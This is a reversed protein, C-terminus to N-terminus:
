EIKTLNPSGTFLFTEMSGDINEIFFYDEEILTVVRFALGNRDDSTLRWELNGQNDLKLLESTTESQSDIWNVHFYINGQPDVAVFHFFFLDQEKHTLLIPDLHASVDQWEGDSHSYRKIVFTGWEQDSMTPIVYLDGDLGAVISQWPRVMPHSYNGMEIVTDLILDESSVHMVDVYVTANDVNCVLFRDNAFAYVYPEGIMVANANCYTLQATSQPGVLTMFTRTPIDFLVYDQPGDIGVFLIRNDTLPIFGRRITQFDHLAAIDFRQIDSGSKSLVFLEIENRLMYITGDEAVKYRDVCYHAECEIASLYAEQQITQAADAGITLWLM